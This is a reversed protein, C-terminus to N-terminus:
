DLLILGDIFSDLEDGGQILSYPPEQSHRPSDSLTLATLPAILEQKGESKERCSGGSVKVEHYTGNMSWNIGSPQPQDVRTVAFIAIILLYHIIIM